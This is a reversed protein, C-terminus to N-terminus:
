PGPDSVRWASGHTLCYELDERIGDAGVCVDVGNAATWVPVSDVEFGAKSLDRGLRKVLWAPVERPSALRVARTEMVAESLAAVDGVARLVADLAFGLDEETMALIEGSVNRTVRELDGTERLTSRVRFGDLASISQIIHNNSMDEQNRWTLSATFEVAGATHTSITCAPVEPLLAVTPATKPAVIM